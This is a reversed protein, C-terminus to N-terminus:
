AWVSQYRIKLEGSVAAVRGTAVVVDKMSGLSWAAPNL